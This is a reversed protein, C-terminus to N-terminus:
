RPTEISDGVMVISELPPHPKCKGKATKKGKCGDRAREGIKMLFGNAKASPELVIPIQTYNPVNGYKARVFEGNVIMEIIPDKKNGYIAMAKIRHPVPPPAKEKVEQVPKVPEKTTYGHKSLFEETMKKKQMESMEGITLPKSGDWYKLPPAEDKQVVPAGSVFQASQVQIPTPVTASKNEPLAQSFAAVPFFVAAFVAGVIFNNKM